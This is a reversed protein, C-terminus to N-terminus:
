PATPTLTVTVPCPPMAAKFRCYVKFRTERDDIQQCSQLVMEQDEDGAEKATRFARQMAAEHEAEEAEVEAWVTRDVMECEAWFARMQEFEATTFTHQFKAETSGLPDFIVTFTATEKEIHLRYRLFRGCHECHGACKRLYYDYIGISVNGCCPAVFQVPRYLLNEPVAKLRNNLVTLSIAKASEKKM